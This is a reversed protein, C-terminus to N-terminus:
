FIIDNVSLFVNIGCLTNCGFTFLDSVKEKCRQTNCSTEIYLFPDRNGKTMADRTFPQVSKALKKIATNM